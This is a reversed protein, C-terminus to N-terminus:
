PRHATEGQARLVVDQSRMTLGAIGAGQRIIEETLGDVFDDDGPDKSLNVLPLVALSVPADKSAAWRVRAATAVLLLGTLAVALWALKASTRQRRGVARRRCRPM